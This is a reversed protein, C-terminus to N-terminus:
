NFRAETTVKGVVTLHAAAMLHAAVTIDLCLMNM